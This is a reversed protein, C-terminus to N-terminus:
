NTVAQIPLYFLPFTPTETQQWANSVDDARTQVHNIPAPRKSTTSLHLGRTGRPLRVGTNGWTAAERERSSLGFPETESERERERLERWRAKESLQTNLKWMFRM